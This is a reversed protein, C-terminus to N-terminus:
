IKPKKFFLVLYYVGVAGLGLGGAAYENHMVQSVVVLVSVLIVFPILYAIVIAKWRQGRSIGTDENTLCRDKLACGICAQSSQHHHQQECEAM